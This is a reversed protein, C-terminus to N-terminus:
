AYANGTAFRNQPQYVWRFLFLVTSQVPLVYNQDCLRLRVWGHIEFLQFAVNTVSYSEYRGRAM